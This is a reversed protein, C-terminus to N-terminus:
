GIPAIKVDGGSKIFKCYQTEKQVTMSVDGICIKTGPHVTDRVVVCASSKGKMQSQLREVEAVKEAVQESKIQNAEVLTQLYQLQEPSLKVGQAAKKKTSIM